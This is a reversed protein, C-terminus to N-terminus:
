QMKMADLPLIRFWGDAGTDPGIRMRECPPFHSDVCRKAGRVEMLVKKDWERCDM